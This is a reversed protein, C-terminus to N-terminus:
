FKIYHYFNNNNERDSDPAKGTIEKMGRKTLIIRPFNDSSKNIIKESANIKNIHRVSKLYNNIHNENISTKLRDRDMLDIKPSIIKKSKNLISKNFYPEKLNSASTYKISHSFNNRTSKSQLFQNISDTSARLM